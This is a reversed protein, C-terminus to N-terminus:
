PNGNTILKPSSYNIKGSRYM